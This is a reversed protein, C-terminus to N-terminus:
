HATQNSWIQTPNTITSGTFELPNSDVVRACYFGCSGRYTEEPILSVTSQVTVAAPCAHTVAGLSVTSHSQKTQTCNRFLYYLHSMVTGTGGFGCWLSVAKLPPLSPIPDTSCCEAHKFYCTVRRIHAYLGQGFYCCLIYPHIVRHCQTWPARRNANVLWAKHGKTWSLM